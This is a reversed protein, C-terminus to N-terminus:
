LHLLSFSFLSYVVTNYFNRCLACPLMSSEVRCEPFAEKLFLIGVLEPLFPSSIPRSSTPASCQAGNLVKVIYKTM